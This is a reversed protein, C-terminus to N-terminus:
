EWFAELITNDEGLILTLRNPDQEIGRIGDSEKIVRLSKPLDEQRVVGEQPQAASGEPVFKKGVCNACDNVSITVQNSGPIQKVTIANQSGRVRVGRLTQGQELPIVASIQVFGGALQSQEPPTAILELDLIDDFPKGAYTPVLLPAAWGESAALGTVCVIVLEPQASTRLIEVSTVYLIPLDAQSGNEAAAPPEEETSWGPGSSSPPAVGPLPAHRSPNNQAFTVGAVGAQILAATAFVFLPRTIRHM